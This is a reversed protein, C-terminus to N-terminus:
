FNCQLEKEKVVGLIQLLDCLVHLQEAEDGLMQNAARSLVHVATYHACRGFRYTDLRSTRATCYGSAEAWARCM